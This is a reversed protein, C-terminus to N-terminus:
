NSDSAYAGRNQKIRIMRKAVKITLAQHSDADIRRKQYFQQVKVFIRPHMASFDNIIRIAKRYNM